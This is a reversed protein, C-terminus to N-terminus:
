HLLKGKHSCLLDQHGADLFALTALFHVLYDLNMRYGGAPDNLLLPQRIIEQLSQSIILSEGERQSFQGLENTVTTFEAAPAFWKILAERNTWAEYVDEKPSKFNRNMTLSFKKIAAATSM